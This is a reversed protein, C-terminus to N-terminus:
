FVGKMDGYKKVLRELEILTNSMFTEDSDFEFKLQNDADQFIGSITVHGLTTHEISLKLAKEYRAFEVLGILNQNCIKLHEYLEYVEGTSVYFISTVQFRGSKIEIRAQVDYGGILHKKQFNMSKRFISKSLAADTGIISFGEM